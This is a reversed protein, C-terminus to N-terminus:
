IYKDYKKIPKVLSKEGAASDDPKHKAMYDDYGTAESWPVDNYRDDIFKICHYGCTNTTDMQRKLNNEKFLAYDEPNMKKAIKKMMLKLEPPIKGECLPDFYEASVYDDDNDFFIGRWHGVRFGDTGSGDSRSPNTNIIAGFKPIGEKVYDLLMEIKDAPIVPCINKLGKMIDEIDTNFLGNRGRGETLSKEDDSFMHVDRVSGLLDSLSSDTSVEDEMEKKMDRSRKYKKPKIDPKKEDEESLIPEYDYMYLPKTKYLEDTDDIPTNYEKSKQFKKWAYRESVNEYGTIDKFRKFLTEINNRAKYNARISGDLSAKKDEDDKKEKVQKAVEVKRKNIDSKVVDEIQPIVKQEIPITTPLNGILNPQIEPKFPIQPNLAFATKKRNVAPKKRPVQKKKTKLIVGGRKPAEKVYIRKGKVLIYKRGNLTKYLRKPRIM